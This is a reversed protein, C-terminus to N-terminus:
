NLGRFLGHRQDKVSGTFFDPIDPKEDIDEIPEVDELEEIDHMIVDNGRVEIAYKFMGGVGSKEAAEQCGDCVVGVARDALNPIFINNWVPFEWAAKKDLHALNLYKSGKMPKDCICCTGKEMVLQVFSDM